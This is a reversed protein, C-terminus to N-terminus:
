YQDAVRCSPKSVESRATERTASTAANDGSARDAIGVPPMVSSEGQRSKEIETLGVAGFGALGIGAAAVAERDLEKEHDAFAQFRPSRPPPQLDIKSFNSSTVPSSPSIDVPDNGSQLHPPPALTIPDTSHAAIPSSPSIDNSIM